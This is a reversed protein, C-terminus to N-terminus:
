EAIGPGNRWRQTTGVAFVANSSALTLEVMNTSPGSLEQSRCFRLTSAFWNTGVKANHRAEASGVHDRRGSPPRHLGNGVGRVSFRWEALM